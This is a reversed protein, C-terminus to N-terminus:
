NARARLAAAEREARRADAGDSGAALEELVAAGEAFRGLSGLVGAAHRREAVPLGPIQLRLQVAWVASAPDRQVFTNVLNALMRSLIATTPVPALYEARFPADGQTAAFQERCGDVDLRAGSHFPDYFAGAGAGVLFHGPMGVGRLELGCRRAVEIMLVSLTIPIGLRRVRVEDLYSNRPDAYDLTNGAYGLERFLYAAVADADSGQALPAAITDLAELEARVPVPHAHAAILLAAEDLPIEADPRNVLETFRETPQVAAVTCAGPRM